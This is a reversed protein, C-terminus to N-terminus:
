NALITKIEATAKDLQDDSPFDQELFSQVTKAIKEQKSRLNAENEELEALGSLAILILARKNASLNDMEEQGISALIIHPQEPADPWTKWEPLETAPAVPPGCLGASSAWMRWPFMKGTLVKVREPDLEENITRNIGAPPLLVIEELGQQEWLGDRSIRKLTAKEVLKGELIKCIRGGRAVLRPVFVQNPSNGAWGRQNRRPSGQSRGSHRRQDTHHQSGCVHNAPVARRSLSNRRRADSLYM